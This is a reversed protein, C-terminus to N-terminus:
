RQSSLAKDFLERAYPIGAMLASALQASAPKELGVFEVLGYYVGAVAVLAWAVAAGLSKM